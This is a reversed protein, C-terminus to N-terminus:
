RFTIRLASAKFQPAVPEAAIKMRQGNPLAVIVDAVPCAPFTIKAPKPTKRKRMASSYQKNKEFV